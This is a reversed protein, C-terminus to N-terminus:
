KLTWRSYDHFDAIYKLEYWAFCRWLLFRSHGITLALWQLGNWTRLMVTVNYLHCHRRLDGGDRNNIWGNTRVYILSFMLAGRWQGKHLENSVPSNGACLLASFTEMQLRWWAILKFENTAICDRDYSFCIATFVDYGSFVDYFAFYLVGTNALQHADSGSCM